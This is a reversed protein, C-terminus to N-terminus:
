VFTLWETRPSALSVVRPLHAGPFVLEISDAAARETGVFCIWAVTAGTLCISGVRWLGNIDHPQRTSAGTM